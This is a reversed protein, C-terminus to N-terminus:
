FDANLFFFKKPPADSGPRALSRARTARLRSIKGRRFEVPSFAAGITTIVITASCYNRVCGRWDGIDM